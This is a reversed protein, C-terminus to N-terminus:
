IKFQLSFYLNMALPFNSSFPDSFSPAFSQAFYPIGPVGNAAVDNPSKGNYFHGGNYFTNSTYGCTYYGPPYAKTWPESSGGFCENLLNTVTFQGTVRPSFDYSMQMGLNFQWPQRFQGFNDFTGTQPNPIYLTGPTTGDSTLAFACSTYDASLPNGGTISRSGQNATCARPDVGQVDAPTGYTTGELLSMAPTVSFKGHRYNLVIAFTNPSIYPIDLGPAYWGQPDLTPQRLMGYYPNLISNSPCAPAPTGKGNPKYCAAGGGAKTLANFEEIDQNYQDVPGVTSNLFNSWTEAANTFTYSFTGSFGNKTFDGKTILLEVGAVRLTGANFSPSVDLSPLNPTEYLQDTGYRYYPTVKMAVDTGKFHHEVSFDYNNSFQPQAEHLPSDYGFPIFGLLTSALNPQLTNYQIEYNQPQQAYRGASFRLVTDPNVTYTASIRPLVYSVAYSSPYQNTLLIGDTGDPHVTQIPTGTSRDIPCNFGVFPTFVFISQPPQPKFIPQRTIPNVCFERQAAAFWFNMGPNNTDALGYQDNEFRVAPTIVWADSPRWQDSISADTLKPVVSNIFGYNGFFTLLMSAGAACAPSNSPLEGGTCPDPSTFCNGHLCDGYPSGFTGQSVLLNCPAPDGVHYRPSNHTAFCDTGNTLNSVQQGSGNNYNQNYYRLTNATIYSVMGELLHASSLQDAFQLELGATHAGVTYQYNTVGLTENDGWGNPTARNTNSYFTYGFLRVYAASGINKQYQLKVISATDWRGDRFNAPVLSLIQNGQANNPCANPVGTVNACRDTPSGPYYYAIKPTSASALWRTGGPFTYFDPWQNPNGQNVIGTGLPGADDLSSYDQSFNASSMYLLQVDDRGPDHRHPVGIHFNAVVDRSDFSSPQGYSTAYSGFCGPDNSLGTSSSSGHFGPNSYGANNRCAAYVAPYFPLLTTLHAPWYGYPISSILSAGNFQDFYRFDQNTGSIGVYYSFLRDPTSGGVEIRADHYFTPTGLALGGTAYGPFTGTKIVQNIFGALGTANADAEGGGTYIQLEQQGLTSASHGPFNDFSRNVPVGDYEYGIQDYYGGRIYVTQNVGVQNPPVYAGPMSAIASYASNLAGGGGLTAAANTLAPNVSYVDTGTGPRVPSLSSRSSVRAIEKLNKQLALPVSQSQDAFVSIGAISLSEFGAQQATITYTDPALSLFIFRGSADTTARAVQSPSVATVTAGAIPTKTASDSVTGAITGTTGAVASKCIWLLSFAAVVASVARNRLSSRM